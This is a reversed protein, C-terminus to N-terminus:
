CCENKSEKEHHEYLATAVDGHDIEQRHVMKYRDCVIQMLFGTSKDPFDDEAQDWLEIITM